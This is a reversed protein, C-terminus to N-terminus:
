RDTHKDTQESKLYLKFTKKGESDLDATWFIKLNPIRPFFNHFSTTECKFVKVLLPHLSAAFFFTKKLLNPILYDNIM